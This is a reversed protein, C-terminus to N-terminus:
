HREILGVVMVSNNFSGPPTVRMVVGPAARNVLVGYHGPDNSTNRTHTFAVVSQDRSLLPMLGWVGPEALAVPTALDSRRVEYLRSLQLNEREVLLISGDDLYIGDNSTRSGAPPAPNLVHLQGDAPSLSLEALDTQTDNQVGRTVSVLVANLDPRFSTVGFSYRTPDADLVQTSVGPTDIATGFLRDDGWGKLDAITTTEYVFRTATRDAFVSDTLQDAPLPANIVTRNSPDATSIRYLDGYRVVVYSDDTAPFVAYVQGYEGARPYIAVCNGPTAVPVRVLRQSNADYTTVIYLAASTPAFRLPEYSRLGTTDAPLSVPVPAGSNGTSVLWVQRAAGDVLVYAAWAGDPSLVVSEINKDPGYEPTIRVPTQVGQTSVAWLNRQLYNESEAFVVLNKQESMWVGNVFRPATFSHVERTTLTDTVMLTAPTTQRPGVFWMDFRPTGVFAVATAVDSQAGSPDQVRYRVRTVGRFGAPLTLQIRNNADVSATGVAPNPEEGPQAAPVVVSLATDDVDSDNTLVNLAVNITSAVEAIEGTAVPADNVAAVNVTMVASRRNNASDLAEVTFSDAGNLDPNPRYTFGGDNSIAVITGRTPNSTVSLKVGAGANTGIFGTFDTDETASYTQAVILPPPAPPPSPTPNAGGSGGGGCAVLCCVLAAGGLWETSHKM